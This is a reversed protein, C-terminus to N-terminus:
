LRAMEAHYRTQDIAGNLLGAVIRSEVQDPSRTPRLRAPKTRLWAIAVMAMLTIGLTILAGM